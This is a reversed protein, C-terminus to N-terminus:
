EQEFSLSLDSVAEGNLEAAEPRGKRIFIAFVAVVFTIGLILLLAGIPQMLTGSAGGFVITFYGDAAYTAPLFAALTQYGDGLLEKSVLVGSTVLQLSLSLINFVMGLNGFVYVFVQAFSLFTLYLVAQFLYVMGFSEHVAVDFLNLLGITLLPLVLAVSINLLQRSWFIGWKSVSTLGSAGEEVQMIMVMAGVFSSIIVMLPVLNASFTGPDNLKNIKSHVPEASITSLGSTVAEQLTASVLGEVPLQHIQQGFQKSFADVQGAFVQKNVGTSIENAAQEMITKASTSTASNIWYLISPSSGEMLDQAFGDPLQIVMQIDRSNLKEKAQELTPYTTVQFPMTSRLMEYIEEGMAADENVWGVTLQEARDEVGKYATLWVSFFILQFMIAAGVGIYTNRVSFLKRLNSM